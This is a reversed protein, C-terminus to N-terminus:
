AKRRFRRKLWALTTILKSSRSSQNIAALCSRHSRSPTVSFLRWDQLLSHAQLLTLSAFQHSRLHKGADVRGQDSRLDHHESFSGCAFKEFDTCPDIAITQATIDDVVSSQAKANPHLNRLINDAARICASTTCIGNNNEKAMEVGLLSGLTINGSALLLILGAMTRKPHNSVKQSATSASRKTAAGASRALETANQLTEGALAVGRQLVSGISDIIPQIPRLLSYQQNGSRRGSEEHDEEQHQEDSQALLPAVEEDRDRSSHHRADHRRHLRSIFSSSHRSGEPRKAHKHGGHRGAGPSSPPDAM